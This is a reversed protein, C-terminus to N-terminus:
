RLGELVARTAERLGVWVDEVIKRMEDDVYAGQASIQVRTHGSLPRVDGEHIEEGSVVMHFDVPYVGDYYRGAIDWSRHMVNAKGGSRPPNEAIRKVYFERDSLTNTLEIITEDGPITPGEIVDEGQVGDITVRDPFVRVAQYTINALSLSFKTTVRTKVGARATGGRPEGLAGYMQLGYIGSLTGKMTVELFGSVSDQALIEDEFEVTLTMRRLDAEDHDPVLHTWTIEQRPRGEDGSGAPAVTVMGHSVMEIKGWGVPVRLKLSEVVDVELKYHKARGPDPWQIELELVHKESEPAISPTVWVPGVNLERPFPLSYDRTVTRRGAAPAGDEALELIEPDAEETTIVLDTKLEGPGPRIQPVLAGASYRAEARTRHGRQDRHRKLRQGDRRDYTLTAEITGKVPNRGVQYGGEQDLTIQTQIRETVRLDSVKPHLAVPLRGGARASHRRVYAYAWWTTGAGLGALVAGLVMNAALVALGSVTVAAGAIGAELWRGPRTHACEACHRARTNKLGPGSGERGFLLETWHPTPRVHKECGPRWCHHCLGRVASSGCDFCRANPTRQEVTATM